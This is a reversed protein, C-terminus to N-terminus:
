FDDDAVIGGEGELTAIRRVESSNFKLRVGAGGGNEPIFRVGLKELAAKVARVNNPLGSAPGESSEMRRLTTVSINALKALRDQGIGALVRGAAIQRGSVHDTESM